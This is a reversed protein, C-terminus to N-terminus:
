FNYTYGLSWNTQGHTIRIGDENNEEVEPVYALAFGVQHHDRMRYGFGGTYHTTVIAPFLPNLSSDPVPNDAFNAGARLAFDPTVSYQAGLSVVVQDDWNQDMVVDISEGAFPGEEATFQVTFTDMVASWNILKIDGVLMWRDSPHISIGAALTEPWEFDRVKLSGKVSIPSDAFAEGTGDFALTAHHTELDSIRTKSHYSAGVTIVDSLKHVIGTKVGFGYGDAEGTFENDNSFDFRAWNIDSIAGSFMGTMMDAMGGRVSGGHGDMLSAFHYGDIDMQMDMSAWVVDVSVSIGTRDNLEYAVPIMVRGLSVESRVDQGSLLVYDAPSPQGTLPYQSMPLGASFLVSDNGYETGMGGQALLAIGWSWRGDKRIYSMSPMYYSDGDSHSEAGNYWSSVHPHLGRVGFGLRADGDKMLTLTAPNSMVASNGTDYAMGAGGLAHAKPGYGELNMGNTAGASPCFALLTFSLLLAHKKQLKMLTEQNHTFLLVGWCLIGRAFSYCNNIRAAFFFVFITM